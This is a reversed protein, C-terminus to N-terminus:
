PLPKGARAVIEFSQGQEDAELRAVRVQQWHPVSRLAAAAQQVAEAAAARGQLHLEGGAQHDLALWALAAAAPTESAGFVARWPYALRQRIAREAAAQAAAATTDAASAVAPERLRAAAQARAQWAGQAEHGAVALTLLAAGLWAWALAGPRPVPHLFDPGAPARRVLSADIPQRLVPLGEVPVPADGPAGLVLAAAPLDAEAADDALLAQLGQPWAVALRRRHIAAVRGGQMRVVTALEGEVLVARWAGVGRRQPAQTQLRGLLLPWLPRVSVVSVQAAAASARLAELDAGHLASVGLAAGRRWAALPWAEAAEGHYHALVRRAWALRAVGDGLPAGRECALDTLRASGIWLACARRPHARCWAGFDAHRKGRDLDWLGEADLLLPQPRRWALWAEPKPSSV